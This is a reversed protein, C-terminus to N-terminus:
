GGPSSSGVRSSNSNDRIERVLAEVLHARVSADKRAASGVHFERIPTQEILLPLNNLSIGGGALIKIEIGAARAYEQLRAAKMAWGGDGGHALIRDIQPVSKLEEIAVLKDDTDEFAHHFTAKINPACSLVKRTMEVDIRGAHLFGLVVGDVGMDNFVSAMCCLKEAAIVETLGYGHAERLMVRLPLDVTQKIERVLDMAPTFGGHELERVVELRHAGGRAAEIADEVTCAIVELVPDRDIEEGNM